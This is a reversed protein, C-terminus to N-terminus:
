NSIKVPPFSAIQVASSFCPSFQKSQGSSNLRFIKKKVGKRQFSAVQARCRSRIRLQDGGGGGRGSEGALFCSSYRPCMTDSRRAGWSARCPVDARTRSNILMESPLPNKRNGGRDERKIGGFAAAGLHAVSQQPRPDSNTAPVSRLGPPAPRLELCGPERQWGSSPCTVNSDFLGSSTTSPPPPHHNLSWILKWVSPACTAWTQFILNSSEWLAYPSMSGPRCFTWFPYTVNLKAVGIINSIEKM